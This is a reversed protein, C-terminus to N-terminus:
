EGKVAGKLIDGIYKFTEMTKKNYTYHSEKKDDVAKYVDKKLSEFYGKENLAENIMLKLKRAYNGRNGFFKKMVAMAVGKEPDFEDNETCKVITKTGDSWMVITAPGNFILKEIKPYSAPMFPLPFEKRLYRVTNVQSQPHLECNPRRIVFPEDSQLFDKPVYGKIEIQIPALPDGLLNCTKFGSIHMPFVDDFEHARIYITDGVQILPINNTM